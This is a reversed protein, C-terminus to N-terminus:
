CPNWAVSSRAQSFASAAAVGASLWSLAEIVVNQLSKVSKSLVLVVVIPFTLSASERDDM